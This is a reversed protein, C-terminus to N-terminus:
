IENNFYRMRNFNFYGITNSHNIVDNNLIGIWENLPINNVLFNHLQLSFYRGYQNIDIDIDDYDSQAFTIGHQDAESENSIFM